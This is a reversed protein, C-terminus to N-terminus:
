YYRRGYYGGGYYYGGDWDEYYDQRDDRADDRYDQRDERSEDRQEQRDNDTRDGVLPKLMAQVDDWTMDFKSERYSREDLVTSVIM